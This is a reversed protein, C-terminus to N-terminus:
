RVSTMEREFLPRDDDPSSVVAPRRWPLCPILLMFPFILSKQRTLIGLNAFSTYALGAAFLTTMAFAVFPVSLMLRPVAITRRWSVACGAILMSMEAASLLQFLGRVEYLLPRTLTRLIALPWDSPGSVVIPPFSSGGQGSRRTTEDLIATIGQSVTTEDDTPKLYRLAFQGVIVFAIAAVVVVSFLVMIDRGRRGMQQGSGASRGLAVLLAPFAGALWVGAIHPRILAAGGLGLAAVLLPVLFGARVLLRAIGYTAIGLFWLMLAEKGISSPWYVLSPAFACLYAYRRRAVRPVAICAAKVFLVMGWFALWGFIVFGTLKSSGAFTYVFSTFRDVFQTGTGGPLVSGLNNEGSWVTGAMFRGYEHYRQADTLGGYADFAVWYRAASGGVKVVFGLLLPTVLPQLTGAFMRRIAIVTAVTMPALVIMVGWIDYAVNSMAWTIAVLYGVAAAVTAFRSLETNM